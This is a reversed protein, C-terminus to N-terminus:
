VSATRHATQLFVRNAPEVGHQFLLFFFLSLRNDRCDQKIVSCLYQVVPNWQILYFGQCLLLIIYPTACRKQVSDASRNVVDFLRSFRHRFFLTRVLGNKDDGCKIKYATLYNFVKEYFWLFKGYIDSFSSVIKNINANINTSNNISNSFSDNILSINIQPKGSEDNTSAKNNINLNNISNKKEKEIMDIIKNQSFQPISSSRIIQKLEEESYKDKNNSDNNILNIKRNLILESNIKNDMNLNKKKKSFLDSSIKKLYETLEDISKNLVNAKSKFLESENFSLRQAECDIFKNLITITNKEIKMKNPFKFNEKIFKKRSEFENAILDTEIFQMIIDYINNFKNRRKYEEVLKEKNITNYINPIETLNLLFNIKEGNILLENMRKEIIYFLEQSKIINLLKPKINLDNEKIINKKEESPDVKIENKIINEIQKMVEDYMNSYNEMNEKFKPLLINIEKPSNEIMDFYKKCDNEFEQGYKDIFENIRDKVDDLDESRKLIEDCIEKSKLLSSKKSDLYSTLIKDIEMQNLYINDVSEENINYKMKDDYYHILYEAGQNKEELKIQSISDQNYEKGLSNLIIFPKNNEQHIFYNKFESINKFNILQYKQSIYLPFINLYSM